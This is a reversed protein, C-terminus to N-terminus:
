ALIIPYTPLLDLWLGVHGFSIGTDLAGNLGAESFQAGRILYQEFYFISIFYIRLM